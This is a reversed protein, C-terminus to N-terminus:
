RQFLDWWRLRQEQLQSSRAQGTGNYLRLGWWLRIQQVQISFMMRLLMWSQCCSLWQGWRCCMNSLSCQNLYSSECPLGSFLHLFLCGSMSSLWLGLWSLFRHCTARGKFYHAYQCFIGRRGSDIKCQVAHRSSLCKCICIIDATTLM